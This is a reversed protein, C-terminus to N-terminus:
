DADRKRKLAREERSMPKEVMEGLKRYRKTSFNVADRFEKSSRTYTLYLVPRSETSNNGLGRHGLRYDFIVPSGAAALPIDVLDRDYGDYGLYHTGICFETPGNKEHLDVLPIFVNIAHCPKQYKKNLHVGDQHYIQTEAGPTSLFAGKHVLTADDGLIKKVVPMWAANLDTLFSYEPGDFEELQMDFRGRGRERFVDFGDALESFLAKAKVTYMVKDYHEMIAYYCMDIQMQTLRWHTSPVFSHQRRKRTKQPKVMTKEETPYDIEADDANPDHACEVSLANSGVVNVKSTSKKSSVMDSVPEKNKGDTDGGESSATVSSSGCTDDEDKPQENSTEHEDKKGDENTNAEQDNSSTGNSQPSSKSSETILAEITTEGSESEATENCNMEEDVTETAEQDNSPSTNCIPPSKSETAEKTTLVTQGGNDDVKMEQNDNGNGFQGNANTEIGEQVNDNCQQVPLQSKSETSASVKTMENSESDKCDGEDTTEIAMEGNGDCKTQSESVVPEDDNGDGQEVVEHVEEVKSGEDNLGDIRGEIWDEEQGVVWLGDRVFRWYGAELALNRTPKVPRLLAGRSGVGHLVRDILKDRDLLMLSHEIAANRTKFTVLDPSIWKREITPICYSAEQHAVTSLVSIPREMLQNIYDEDDTIYGEEEQMIIDEKVSKLLGHNVDIEEINNLIHPLVALELHYKNWIFLPSTTMKGKYGKKHEFTDDNLEHKFNSSSASAGQVDTM